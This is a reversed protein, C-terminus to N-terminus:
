RIAGSPIVTGPAQTGLLADEGKPANPVGGAAQAMGADFSIDLKRWLAYQEKPLQLPSAGMLAGMARSAAERYAADRKYKPQEEPPLTIARVVGSEDLEATLVVSPAGHSFAWHQAVQRYIMAMIQQQAQSPQQQAQAPVGLGMVAIVAIFFVKRRM